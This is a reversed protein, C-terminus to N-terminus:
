VQPHPNDTIFTVNPSKDLFYNKLQVPVVFHQQAVMTKMKLYKLNNFPFPELLMQDRELCSSLLETIDMDLILFKASYLKHFVGLLRSVCFNTAWQILTDPWFLKVKELSDFGVASKHLPDRCHLVEVLEVHATLNQLQPAVVNLVNPYCYDYRGIIILNKLVPFDWGSESIHCRKDCSTFNFELTLDELARCSFLFEPFKHYKTSTSELKLRRINHLGAYNVIRRSTINTVLERCRLELISVERLNNRHLLAHNVFKNFHSLSSFKYSDLNLQPLLTWSLKWRKSLASTQMAYKLDLFSLIHNIIDDPLNSIKDEGAM